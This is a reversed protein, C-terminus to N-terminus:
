QADRVTPGVRASVERADFAKANDAPMRGRGMRIEATVEFREVTRTDVHNRWFPDGWIHIGHGGVPARDMIVGIRDGRLM